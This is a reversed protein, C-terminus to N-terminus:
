AAERLVALVAERVPNHEAALDEPTKGDNDVKSKDAGAALLLRVCECHGKEAAEHLPTKGNKRPPDVYAGFDLLTQICNPHGNKAADCMPSLGLSASRYDIPSRDGLQVNRECLWRLAKSYGFRCTAMLISVGKDNVHSPSAGMTEVCYRLMPLHGMCAATWGIMNVDKDPDLDFGGVGNAEGAGCFTLYDERTLEEFPKSWGLAAYDPEDVVDALILPRFM